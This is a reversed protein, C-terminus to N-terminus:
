EPTAQGPEETPFLVENLVPMLVKGFRVTPSEEVQRYDPVDSTSLYVKCLAPRGAFHPKVWNTGPCEWEGNDSFSWLIWQRETGLTDEKKFTAMSFEPDDMTEGCDLLYSSAQGEMEYGAARYCWDPTHQTVHRATGSVLFVNVADNTHRNVYVRSVNGPCNSAAIQRPDVELDTGEWDGVVMPVHNVLRETLADLKESSKGWWGPPFEDKQWQIFTGVALLLLAVVFPLLIRTM